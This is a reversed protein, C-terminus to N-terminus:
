RQNGHDLVQGVAPQDETLRVLAVVHNLREHQDPAAGEVGKGAEINDSRQTSGNTGYTKAIWSHRSVHCELGKNCHRAGGGPM